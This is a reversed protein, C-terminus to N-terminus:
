NDYRQLKAFLCVLGAPYVIIYDPNVQSNSMQTIREQEYPSESHGHYNLIVPAPTNKDYNKPLYFLYERNQSSVTINYLSSHSGPSISVDTGCGSTGHAFFRTRIEEIEPTFKRADKDPSNAHCSSPLLLIPLLITAKPKM